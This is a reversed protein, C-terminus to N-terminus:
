YFNPEKKLDRLAIYMQRDTIMVSFLNSKIEEIKKIM